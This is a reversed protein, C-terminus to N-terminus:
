VSVLMEEGVGDCDEDPLSCLRNTELVNFHSFHDFNLIVKRIVPAEEGIM